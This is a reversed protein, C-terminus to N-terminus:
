TELSDVPGLASVNIGVSFYIKGCTGIKDSARRPPIYTSQLGDQRTKIDVDSAWEFTQPQEVPDVVRM